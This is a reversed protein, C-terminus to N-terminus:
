KFLLEIYLNFYNLNPEYPKVKWLPIAVNALAHCHNLCLRNWLSLFNFGQFYETRCKPSVIFSISNHNRWKGLLLFYYMTEKGTLTVSANCINILPYYHQLSHSIHRVKKFTNLSRSPSDQAWILSKCRNAYCLWLRIHLLNAQLSLCTTLSSRCQWVVKPVPITICLLRQTPM